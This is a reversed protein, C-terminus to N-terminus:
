PSFTDLIAQYAQNLRQMHEHAEPSRNLDPHYRRALLRYARKVTERDDGPRVGLLVYFDHLAAEARVHAAPDHETGQPGAFDAVRWVDNLGALSTRVTRCTLSRFRVTTGFEVLRVPTSGRFYVPFIFSEADILDYAYICGGYLTYLAEMWDQAHYTQGHNPLMMDCWLLFLTHIDKKGNDHLTARIEYLPLESEIFHLSVAQGRPTEFLVIDGGNHIMRELAGHESLQNVTYASAYATEYRYSGM